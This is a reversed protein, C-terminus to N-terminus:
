QETPKNDAPSSHTAAREIIRRANSYDTYFAPNITKFPKMLLDITDSLLTKGENIKDKIQTTLASGAKQQTQNGPILTHYEMTADHLEQLEAPKVGQQLLAEAYPLATDHLELLKHVFDNDRMAKLEWNRIIAKAKLATDSNETAIALLGDAIHEATAVLSERTTKKKGSSVSKMTDAQMQQQRMSFIDANIAHLGQHAKVLATREQFDSQHNDLCLEVNLFMDTTNISSRDM